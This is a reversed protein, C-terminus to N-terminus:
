REKHEECCMWYIEDFAFDHGYCESKFCVGMGHDKFSGKIYKTCKPELCYYNFPMGNYEEEEKFYLSEYLARMEERDELTGDYVILDDIPVQRYLYSQFKFMLNIPPTLIIPFTSSPLVASLIPPLFVNIM